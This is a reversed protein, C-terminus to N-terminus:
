DKLINNGMNKEELGAELESDELYWLTLVHSTTVTILLSCWWNFYAKMENFIVKKM